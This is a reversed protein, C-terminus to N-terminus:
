SVKDLPVTYAVEIQSLFVSREELTAADFPM